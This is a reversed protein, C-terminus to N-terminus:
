DVAWEKSLFEMRKTIFSRLYKVSADFNKGSGTYYGTVNAPNWRTFNMTASANIEAVYDDISKIFSDPQPERLGLLVEIAPLMVSHYTAKVEARFDPRKDLLWWLNAKSKTTNLYERTPVSGYYFADNRINGMCLDYDWCPGAYIKSDVQDSDKYFFQSSAKADYNKTFEEILYKRVFSPVDIYDSYPRGTDPNVGDPAMLANHFENFVGAIYMIESRSAQTPEKVTICISNGTKFGNDIHERYRYSKEMELLYGGTIDNPDHALEYGRISELDRTEEDFTPYTDVPQPNAKENASELNTINVRSKGIQIKETLLYLGNYLGNVYVDVPECEVAYPLGIERCLDLTIQNRLLSLDIHNALLIWTKDKGMGCLDAKDELKVQFPKKRYAFTSNGRGHFSTLKGDYSISGDAEVFVVDGQTIENNKSKEIAAFEEADVTFFISPIQSGHYVALTGISKNNARLKYKTGLMASFDVTQGNEITMDGFQISDLEGLNMQIATIDWTGPIFLTYRNEVLRTRVSLSPDVARSSASFSYTKAASASIAFLLILISLLMASFLRPMRSHRM